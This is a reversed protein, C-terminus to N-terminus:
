SLLSQSSVVISNVYYYRRFEAIYMYNFDLVEDHVGDVLCIDAILDGNEDTLALAGQPPLSLLLAPSLINVDAKFAGTCSAVFVLDGSKDVKNREALYKYLTVNM